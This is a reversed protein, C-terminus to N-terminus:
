GPKVWAPIFNLLIFIAAAVVTLVIALVTLWKVTEADSGVVIPVPGIIVAAGGRIEEKGSSRRAERLSGVFILLVGVVVMIFAAAFLLISIAFWNL